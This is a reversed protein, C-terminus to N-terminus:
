AWAGQAPLLAFLKSHRPRDTLDIRAILARRAADFWLVQTGTKDLEIDRWPYRPKTRIETLGVAIARSDIALGRCWGFAGAAATDLIAEPPAATDMPVRWVRGDVSTLWLHGERLAGDHPPSPIRAITRLTRACRVESSALLTVLLHPGARVVHNPHAYDRVKRRHFPVDNAPADYYTGGPAITPPRHVPGWGARLVSPFDERSVAGGALRVAEFWAPTMAIRGLFRAEMDFIEVADLGSNCVHIQGEEPDVSVAHLDNFDPQHLQGAPPEGPAAFRWVSDFTCVALSGDPLFAAGTFGKTKVRHPPPPFFSILREVSGNAPNLRDVFCEGSDDFYGGTVLLKM